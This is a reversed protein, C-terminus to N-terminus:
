ASLYFDLCLMGNDLEWHHNPCLGVLNHMGNIESIMADDSFDKLPKIHACEVHTKYGCVCCKELIGHKEASRRAHSRIRINHDGSKCLLMAKTAKDISVYSGDSAKLLGQCDLCRKWGNHGAISVGCVKCTRPKCPPGYVSRNGNSNAYKASCSMTCFKPNKTEKGCQKCPKWTRPKMLRPERGFVEKMAVSWSGFVKKVTYTTYKGHKNYTEIGFDVGLNNRLRRLDNAIDEKSHLKTVDM